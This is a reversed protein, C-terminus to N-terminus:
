GILIKEEPLEYPLIKKKESFSLAMSLSGVRGCYMLLIVVAQSILTLDRTIGASVGVTSIASFTELLVDRLDLGQTGCIFLAAMLALLMNTCAVASARKITDDGIRRQFINVGRTRKMNARVYLFLVLITTTKVGGATSGPSGGIFMLMVSLLKSGDSLGAVDTTNFGATRMTVSDFLCTLFTEGPGLDKALNGAEFLYYLFAGGFVLVTSTVLVIKSHLRYKRFHIGHRTVDDWVIFGIGGIIVLAMITLNVLWDGSYNVLSSYEGQYGMLDFGANCFASVSHFIGYYIGRWFGHEECFRLSLLVAGTGEVLLTGLLIKKMLHVIGGM